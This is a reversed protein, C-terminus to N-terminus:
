ITANLCFISSQLLVNVNTASHNAIVLSYIDTLLVHAVLAFFDEWFWLMGVVSMHSAATVLTLNSLTCNILLADMENLRDSKVITSLLSQFSILSQVSWLQLQQASLQKQLRMQMNIVESVLIVRVKWCVQTDSPAPTSWCRHWTMRSTWERCSSRPSAWIVYVNVYVHYMQSQQPQEHHM